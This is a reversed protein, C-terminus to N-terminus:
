RMGEMAPMRSAGGMQHMQGMGEAAAPPPAAVPEGIRLVDSMEPLPAAAANPNAPHQPSVLPLEVATSCGVIFVAAVLCAAIRQPM